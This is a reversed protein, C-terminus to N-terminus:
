SRPGAAARSRWGRLIGRAQLEMHAPQLVRRIKDPETSYISLREGWELLNVTVRDQTSGSDWRLAGQVRYVARVPPSSLERYMGLDLPKVNGERVGRAVGDPLRIAKAGAVLM